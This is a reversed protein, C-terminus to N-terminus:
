PTDHRAELLFVDDDVVMITAGKTSKGSAPVENGPEAEGTDSTLKQTM